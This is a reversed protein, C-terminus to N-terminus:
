PMPPSDGPFWLECCLPVPIGKEPLMLSKKVCSFSIMLFHFPNELDWGPHVQDWEIKGVFLALFRNDTKFIEM